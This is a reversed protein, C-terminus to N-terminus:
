ANRNWHILPEIYYQGIAEAMRVRDLPKDRSFRRWFDREYRGDEWKSHIPKIRALWDQWLEKEDDGLRRVGREVNRRLVVDCVAEEVDQQTYYPVFVAHAATERLQERVYLADEYYDGRLPSPVHVPDGVLLVPTRPWTANAAHTEVHKADRNSSDVGM